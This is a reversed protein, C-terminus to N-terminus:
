PRQDNAFPREDDTPLPAVTIPAIVDLQPVAISATPLAEVDLAAVELRPPALADIESIADTSDAKGTGGFGRQPSPPLRVRSASGSEYTANPKETGGFGGLPSPPRQVTTDPKAGVTQNAGRDLQRDRPQVGRAVFIAVVILAAAAVPSLIWAARWTSRPSQGEIIRALVRARFDAPPQADTMQQAVEDIVRDGIQRDHRESM